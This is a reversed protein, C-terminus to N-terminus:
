PRIGSSSRRMRSVSASARRAGFPPGCNRLSSTVGLVDGLDDRPPGANRDRPHELALPLPQRLEVLLQRAAHDPLLLRHLGDRVGHAARAGPQLIRIPGDAREDEEAGRAHSLGLRRAREGLEQEVVLLRHHADVHRLVHLLVGDRPQDARRRAVDAVLLAALEGLRHAAARVRHHQEVLDLLRMRVHEVDQQLNEVVPAEGIRLPARHVEPVGDDDHRRVDARREDELM